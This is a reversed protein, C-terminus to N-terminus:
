WSLKIGGTGAFARANSAFDGDFQAFVRVRSTLDLDFGVGVLAADVAAGAGQVTFTSAPALTALAATMSRTPNYEHAWALRLRPTFVSGDNFTFSSSVQGGLTSRVSTTTQGQVALGLVGPAGSGLDRSAEAYGNQKVAQVLLGAFPTLVTRDIAFRWGGELRGGYQQGDYAGTILESISGTAVVRTTNFSGYGYGLAADVYAPGSTFGGYVGFVIARASGYSALSNVSYGSSTTGLTVGLMLAPTLQVDIGTAGGGASMDVRSSGTAANGDVSGGSGFGQAWATVRRGFAPATDCTDVGCADAPEGGFLMAVRNGGATGAVGSGQGSSIQGFVTAFYQGFAALSGTTGATAVEGSLQQLTNPATSALLAAYGAAAAGTLGTSYGAELATGVSFGNSGGSNLGQVQNFPIRTLVLDVSNLNYVAAASFFPTSATVSSFQGTSSAFTLAGGYTTRSGYLGPQILARLTGGLNAIGTGPQSNLVALSDSGGGPSVRLGLSGTATQTFTGDVQHQVGAGTWPASITMMGSNTLTSGATGILKVPGDLTGSNIVIASRNGQQFVTAGDEPAIIMGSNILTSGNGLVVGLGNSDTAAITGTNIIQNNSGFNGEDIGAGDLGYTITGSNRVVNNSGFVDIGTGESGVAITGSNTVASGSEVFIGDGGDGVTIRGRNVVTINSGHAVMAGGIITGSNTMTGSDGQMFMAEGTGDGGIQITGSNTLTGFNGDIAMAQVDAGTVVTGSNSVTRSDGVTLLGAGSSVFAGVTVSGTNTINGNTAMGVGDLGAVISGSNTLDATNGLMGLGNDGVRISGANSATGSAVVMGYGLGPGVQISGTNTVTSAASGAAFIGLGGAVDISGSNLVTGSGNLLALGYGNGVKVTGTNTITATTAGSSAIVAGYGADAELKGSNTITGSSGQIVAAAIAGNQAIMTGTNTITGSDGIIGAAAGGLTATITGSNFISSGSGNSIVGGASTITGSNTLTLSGGTLAYALRTTITGSNTVVTNNGFAIAAWADGVSITGTNTITNHDAVNIATGAGNGLAITGSNTIWNNNGANVATGDSDGVSVTGFNGLTNNDNLSLGTGVTAGSQVTVGLGNVGPAAAFGAPSSGSCTVTVGLLICDALAPQSTACCALLAAAVLM